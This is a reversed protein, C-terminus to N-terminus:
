PQVTPAAARSKGRGDVGGKSWAEDHGAHWGDLLVHMTTRSAPGCHHCCGCINRGHRNIWCRARSPKMIRKTTGCGEEGKALCCSRCCLTFDDGERVVSYHVQASRRLKEPSDHALAKAFMIADIASFKEPMM